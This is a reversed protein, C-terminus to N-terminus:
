LGLAEAHADPAIELWRALADALGLAVPLLSTPQRTGLWGAYDDLFGNEGNMWGRTNRLYEERPMQVARMYCMCQVHLPLVYTGVPQTGATAAEDCIDPEPHQPSLRVQEGIVGPLHRIIEETMLHHAIQIENRAMRLANYALGTGRCEDGRLLGRQDAAREAPTMRYLRAYSWRPCDANAGLLGEMQRALRAASTRQSLALALTQRIETLGNNEFRWIRQSLNFGDSYIRTAAQALARQRREEWLRLMVQVENAAIVRESLAEGAENFSRMLDNHSVVLTGFPIAAAEERAKQLMRTWRAILNKWQAETRSMLLFLEADQLEGDDGAGRLIATSLWESFEAFMRQTEGTFRVQLRLLARQQWREVNRSPIDALSRITAM